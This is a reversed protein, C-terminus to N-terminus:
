IAIDQIQDFSVKEKHSKDKYREDNIDIIETEGGANFYNIISVTDKMNLYEHM